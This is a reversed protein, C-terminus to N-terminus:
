KWEFDQPNVLTERMAVNKMKIDKTHTFSAMSPLMPFALANDAIYDFARAVHARRAKDDMITDHGDALALLEPIDYERAYVQRQLVPSVEFVQGASWGFYGIAVKGEQISKVRQPTTINQVNARIGVARLMGAFATAETARNATTTVLVDFGDAYGAEALLKKAMAPDYNPVARTFGCGLQERACLGDVPKIGASLAGFQAKVVEDRNVAHAIARRVRVDALPKNADRAHTPFGFFTHEIGPPSLTVDFRGSDRLSLAQDAPLNLAMDAKDVLLAAVLTGTDPIAEGLVKGISAAYKVRTAKFNTNKEAAIGGNKDFKTMKYPGTGIPATGFDEKNALPAHKHEPFMFTGSAMWMLGTPIPAKSTIRVKHPGLKEVKEIWAWNSKYRLRVKPDILWGIFYVVDDADFKEGDHWTVDERLDYEYVTPSPQRWATALAPVFEGTKPDFGLLNDYLAPEWVNDFVGPNLYPDLTSESRRVPFRLTDASKQPFAPEIAAFVAAVSAAALLALRM